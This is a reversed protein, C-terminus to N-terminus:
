RWRRPPTWSSRGASTSSCTSTESFTQQKNYRKLSRCIQHCQTYTETSARRTFWSSWSAISPQTTTWSWFATQSRHRVETATIVPSNILCAVCLCLRMTGRQAMMHISRTPLSPLTTLSSMLKHGVSGTTSELLPVLAM